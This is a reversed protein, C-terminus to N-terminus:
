WEARGNGDVPFLWYLAVAGLTYSIVSAVAVAGSAFLRNIATSIPVDAPIAPMSTLMLWGVVGTWALVAVAFVAISARQKVRSQYEDSM